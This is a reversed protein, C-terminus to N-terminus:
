PTLSIVRAPNDSPMVELSGVKMGGGGAIVLM